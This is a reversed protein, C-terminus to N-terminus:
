RDVHQRTSPQALAPRRPLDIWNEVPISVFLLAAYGVAARPEGARWALFVLLGLGLGAGPDFVRSVLCSATFAGLGRLTAEPMLMSLVGLSTAM